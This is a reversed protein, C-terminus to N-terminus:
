RSHVRSKIVWGEPKQPMFSADDIPQNLKIALLTYRRSDNSRWGRQYEVAIPLHRERDLTIFVHDYASKLVPDLPTARVVLRDPDSDEFLEFKFQKKAVIEKMGVLFPLPDIEKPNGLPPFILDFQNGMFRGSWAERTSDRFEQYGGIQEKTWREITKKYGLYDWVEKDTWVIRELFESQDDRAAHAISLVAQGSDKWRIDYYLERSGYVTRRSDKRSFKASLTKIRASSEVWANVVANLDEARAPTATGRFQPFARAGSVTFTIALVIVGTRRSIVHGM